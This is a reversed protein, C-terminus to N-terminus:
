HAIYDKYKKPEVIARKTRKRGEKQELQGQKEGLETNKKVNGLQESDKATDSRDQLSHAQCGRESRQEEDEGVSETTASILKKLHAVNRRYEKGTDCSRVTTDGGMKRVVQFEEPSYDSQLKNAKKMRKIVVRDGVAIGSEVASRKLDIYAKQKEKHLRDRDRVEEDMLEQFPIGPLKNRIKRGFMLEAPSKGTVSHNTSHYTLLYQRLELRWDKGLEQAIRLRKLISRNQREVEGNMAPWYPITNIIKIGNSECFEQFESCKENFQPGNDVRLTRPLGFRSFVAAMEKITDAATTEKMECVEMYRSYYDVIVLLYQGEPLPGLFDAAVDTWPQEPFERRVIPEPPNPASVLTCGKCNRVFKEVDQDLKPWWVNTRLHSKMMSIGPHGEHAIELVRNRLSRPIVIRDIRLLVKDITCLENAIVRYSLPLEAHLEDALSAVVESIESDKQSEERIESWQLAFTSGALVAIERITIEEEPDFATSKVTALRSLCDAINQNGPIHVVHYDFSQLRLIWREIRACAKSRPTFLYELVKCDTMLTFSKGYLYMRFREVSWVLALAEKETQCYRRETDTLSKSAFSIVRCNGNTSEQLLVAGLGSPSADAVVMTKDTPVFFGLTTASAIRTKITQFATEHAASWEFKTEKKTLNRLPEAVTALDPIFKNLYNALGLFSRVESECTPPRFSSVANVKTQSPSIGAESIHHGLFDLESVGFACKEWNLEM